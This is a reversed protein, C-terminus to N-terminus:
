ESEYEEHTLEVDPLYSKTYITNTQETIPEIINVSSQMEPGLLKNYLTTWENLTIPVYEGRVQKVICLTGYYKEDILPFVYNNEYGARGTKKGYLYIENSWVHLIEFNNNNRYNCVSYLNEYSKVNKQTITGNKNIILIM